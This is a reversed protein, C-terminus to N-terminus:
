SIALAAVGAAMLSSGLMRWKVEGERLLRAGMWAGIMMSIERAPAVHSIPAVRMAFLILIYGVPMLVSIGLAEKWCQHFEARLSRWRGNARSALVVTRFANGAYDILFPSVLLTRAAYGDVLTYSAIVVGTLTGWILGARAHPRLLAQFGGCITVIGTAVLLAGAAAMLSFSERLVLIARAWHHCCRGPGAPWLTSWPCIAQGTGACFVNRTCFISRVLRWWASSPLPLM